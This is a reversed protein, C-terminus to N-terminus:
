GEKHLAVLKAIVALSAVGFQESPLSLAMRGEVAIAEYRALKVTVSDRQREAIDREIRINNLVMGPTGKGPGKLFRSLWSM